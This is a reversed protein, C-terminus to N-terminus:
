TVHLTIYQTVHLTLNIRITTSYLSFTASYWQSPHWLPLSDSGNIDLPVTTHCLWPVYHPMAMTCLTAYGHCMTHCLLPVYHPMAMACLTAYCHCMTHCLLPVYHPMAMTCLTAYCHCMTHCLLPVYHPMAMACQTAYGHCM